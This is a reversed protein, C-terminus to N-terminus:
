YMLIRIFSHINQAIILCSLGISSRPYCPSYLNIYFYRGEEEDFISLKKDESKKKELGSNGRTFIYPNEQFSWRVILWTSFHYLQFNPSTTSSQLKCCFITYKMCKGIKSVHKEFAVNIKIYMECTTQYFTFYMITNCTNFLSWSVKVGSQCASSVTYVKWFENDDSKDSVALQTAISCVSMRLHGIFSWIIRMFASNHIIQPKHIYINNPMFNFNADSRIVNILPDSTRNGSTVIWLLGLCAEWEVIGRQTITLHSHESYSFFYHLAGVETPCAYEVDAIPIWPNQFIKDQVPTLQWPLHLERILSYRFINYM